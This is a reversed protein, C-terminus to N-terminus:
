QLGRTNELQFSRSTVGLLQWELASIELRFLCSVGSFVPSSCEESPLTLVRQTGDQDQCTYVALTLSRELHCGVSEEPEVVVKVTLNQSSAPHATPDCHAAGGTEGGHSVCVKGKSLGIPDAARIEPVLNPVPLAPAALM